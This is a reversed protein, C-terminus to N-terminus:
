LTETIRPWMSTNAVTILADTDVLVPYRVDDDVM